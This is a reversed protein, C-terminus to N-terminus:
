VPALYPFSLKHLPQWGQCTPLHELLRSPASPGTSIESAAKATLWFSLGHSSWRVAGLIQLDLAVGALASSDPEMATQTQHWIGM